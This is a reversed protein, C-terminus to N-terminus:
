TKIGIKTRKRKFTCPTLFKLGFIHSLIRSYFYVLVRSLYFILIRILYFCLCSIHAMFLKISKFIVLKALSVFPEQLFCLADGFLSVKQGTEEQVM